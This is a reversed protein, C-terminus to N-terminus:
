RRFVGVMETHHSWTFQDIPTVSELTYGGDVLTRADRAFSAPNCSVGVIVPVDSKAMEEAQKKAGARPPDFIVADFDELEMPILPDLMLDRPKTTVPKCIGQGSAKDSAAQLGRMMPKSSEFASIHAQGALPGTFTGSGAFLDAVKGVEGVAEGVLNQMAQEGAKAAQVFAGPPPVVKLPGWEMYADRRAALVEDNWSLRAYDQAEGFNVITQIEELSPERAIHLVLDLGNDSQTLQVEVKTKRGMVEDLMGRLAPLAAVLKPTAVPCTQIDIIQNGKPEVFGLQVERGARRAKMSLRRRSAPGVAITNNVTVEELGRQALAIVVRDRKFDGLVAPAMHQLQCGGCTGFHPCAPEIRDASATLVQKLQARDGALEVEVDEGPLTYPVYLANGEHLAVGDGQHGLHDIKIKTPM